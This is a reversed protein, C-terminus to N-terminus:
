EPKGTVMDQLWNRRCDIHVTFKSITLYILRGSWYRTFMFFLWPNNKDYDFHLSGMLIRKWNM